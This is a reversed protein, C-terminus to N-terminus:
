KCLDAYNESQCPISRQSRGSLPLPLPMKTTSSLSDILPKVSGEVVAQEEVALQVNTASGAM